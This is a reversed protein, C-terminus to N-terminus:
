MVSPLTSSDPGSGSCVQGDSRFGGSADDELIRRLLTVLSGSEMALPVSLAYASVNAALRPQQSALAELMANCWAAEWRALAESPSGANRVHVSLSHPQPLLQIRM